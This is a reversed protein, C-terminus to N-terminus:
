TKKRPITALKPTALSGVIIIKAYSRLALLRCNSLLSLADGASTDMCPVDTRIDPLNRSYQIKAPTLGMEEGIGATPGTLSLAFSIMLMNLM